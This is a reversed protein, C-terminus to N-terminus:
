WRSPASLSSASAGSARVPGLPALCRRFRFRAGTRSVAGGVGLGALFAFGEAFGAKTEAAGVLASIAPNNLAQIVPGQDLLQRASLENVVIRVEQGVSQAYLFTAQLPNLAMGSSLVAQESTGAATIQQGETPNAVSVSNLLLDTQAGFAGNAREDLYQAVSKTGVRDSFVYSAVTSQLANMTGAPTAAFQLTLLQTIVAVGQVDLEGLISSVTAAITPLQTPDYSWVDMDSVLKFTGAFGFSGTSFEGLYANAIDVGIM